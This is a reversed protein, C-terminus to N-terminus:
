ATVQDVRAPEGRRWAADVADFLAITGEVIAGLDIRKGSGLRIRVLPVAGTLFGGGGWAHTLEVGVVDRWAVLRSGFPTTLTLGTPAVEITRVTRRYALVGIISAGLFVVVGFWDRQLIAVALLAVFGLTSALYPWPTSPHRRFTRMALHRERLHPTHRHVIPLLEGFDPLDYSLLVSRHSPDLLELRRRVLRERVGHVQSWSMTVERDRRPSWAIGSDDTRVEQGRRRWVEWWIVLGVAVITARMVMMPASFMPVGPVPLLTLGLALLLGVTGIVLPVM